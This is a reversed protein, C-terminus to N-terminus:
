VATITSAFRGFKPRWDGVGVLRGSDEIIEKVDSFTLISDDYEVETTASWGSFMPRTRMVKSTGVRVGVTLHYDDSAYLEELAAQLAEQALHGEPKGDFDLIAQQDVFLGSKAQVGRKSKKAGAIFASELVHSPITTTAYKVGDVEYTGLYLGALWEIRALEDLDADTKKRKGSISKMEKAFKNRPDATQGNHLLINNTGTLTVIAKNIAM